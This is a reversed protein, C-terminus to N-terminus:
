EGPTEPEVVRPSKAFRQKLDQYINQAGPVNMRAGLKVSNYFALSAQYAESGALVVTDDLLHQLEEVKRLFQTLETVADVDKKLENLDVFAPLLSTNAQAYELSKQVFPSTGDNMKPLERRDQATLSHLYPLLKTKLTNLADEIALKDEAAIEISVRNEFAM